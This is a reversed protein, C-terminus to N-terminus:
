VKREYNRVRKLLYKKIDEHNNKIKHNLVKTLVDDLVFGIDKGKFNSIQMIDNGNIQLESIHKIVLNDHTKKIQEEKQKKFGFYGRIKNALLIDNINYKFSIYPDTLDHEFLYYIDNLQKKLTNELNLINQKYFCIAEFELLNDIILDNNIIIKIGQEYNVLYSLVNTKLLYDFGRKQNKSLVIKSLEERIRDFSLRQVLYAQRGLAELTQKEIDFDLKSAFYIARLIRLADEEFRIDPNGIARVLHNDLDKQGEFLDILKLNQDLALANITFDRRRLDAELNNAVMYRPHRYDEYDLDIRFTTVEFSYGNFLVEVCNYKIGKTKTEFHSQLVDPLASTAIDVDHFNENLLYDRVAGGVIFSSYGMSNLIKILNIGEEFYGM